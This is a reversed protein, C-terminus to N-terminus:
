IAAQVSKHCIYTFENTYRLKDMQILERKFNEFERIYNLIIQIVKSNCLNGFNSEVHFLCFKSLLIYICGCGGKQPDAPIMLLGLLKAVGLQQHM